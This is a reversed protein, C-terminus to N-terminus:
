PIALNFITLVNRFSVVSLSCSKLKYANLHIKLAREQPMSPLLVFLKNWLLSCIPLAIDSTTARIICVCSFWVFHCAFEIALSQRLRREISDPM